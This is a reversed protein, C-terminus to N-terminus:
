RARFYFHYRAEAGLYDLTEQWLHMASASISTAKFNQKNFGKALRLTSDSAEYTWSAGDLSRFVLKGLGNCSVGDDSYLFSRGSPFRMLDDKECASLVSGTVDSETTAPPLQLTVKELQWSHMPLHEPQIDEVPVDESKESCAGILLTAFLLSTRILNYM